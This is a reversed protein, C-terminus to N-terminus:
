APEEKGHPKCIRCPALGRDRAAGPSMVQLDDRGEVLHCSKAHYTTRGAIVHEGEDEPVATPGAGGRVAGFEHIITGLEDLKGSLRALEQRIAHVVTLALGAGVLALGGLGGSIVYPMQGSVYDINAAGNWGLVILLIGIGTLGVATYIVGNSGQM